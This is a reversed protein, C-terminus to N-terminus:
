FQFVSAPVFYNLSEVFNTGGPILDRKKLKSFHLSESFLVGSGHLVCEFRILSWSNPDLFRKFNFFLLPPPPAFLVSKRCFQSEGCILDGRKLKYFSWSEAFLIGSDHLICQFRIFSSSITDMSSKFNFCLLPLWIIWIEQLIPEWWFNLGGEKTQLFKLVRCFTSSFWVSHM